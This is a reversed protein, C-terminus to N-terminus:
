DVTLKLTIPHSVGNSSATVVISYTGPPTSGTGTGTGTSTGTSSGGGSSTCSSVGGLLIALFVIM